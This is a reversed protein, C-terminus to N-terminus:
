CVPMEIEVEACSMRFLGHALRDPGSTYVCLFMQLRFKRLQGFASYHFQAPRKWDMGHKSLTSPETHGEVGKCHKPQAFRSSAPWVLASPPCSSFFM